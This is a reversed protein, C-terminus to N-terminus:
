QLPRYRAAVVTTLDPHEPDFEQPLAKIECYIQGNGFYCEPYQNDDISYYDPDWMQLLGGNFDYWIYNNVKKAVPKVIPPKSGKIIKKALPKVIPPKSGGHSTSSIGTISIAIVLLCILYKKM